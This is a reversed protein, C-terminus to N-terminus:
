GVSIVSNLSGLGNPAWDPCGPDVCWVDDVVFKYEHRGKPLLIRASYVGGKYTLKNKKPNWGNFTGAVYVQSGPDAKISFLARKKGALSARPM